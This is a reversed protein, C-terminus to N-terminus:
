ENPLSHESKKWDMKMWRHHRGYKKPYCFVAITAVFLLAQWLKVEKLGTLFVIVKNWTFFLLTSAVLWWVICIIVKLWGMLHYSSINALTTGSLLVLPLVILFARKMIKEEIDKELYITTILRIILKLMNKHNTVTSSVDFIM